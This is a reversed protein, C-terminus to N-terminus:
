LSSLTTLARLGLSPFNQAAKREEAVLITSYIDARCWFVSQLHLVVFSGDHNCISAPMSQFAM